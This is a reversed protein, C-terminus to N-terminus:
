LQPQPVFVLTALPPLTLTLSFPRGHCPTDAAMVAGANGVNSGGFIGADTNLREAYLGGKPVGVRYGYRIEPTFNCVVVAVDDAARGRRLFCLISKEWDTCDIWEFGSPASDREHLAAVQRYM